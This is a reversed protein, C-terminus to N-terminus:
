ALLARVTRIPRLRTGIPLTLKNLKATWNLVVAM